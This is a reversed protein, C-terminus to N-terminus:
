SVMCMTSFICGHHELSPGERAWSEELTVVLRFWDSGDRCGNSFLRSRSIHAGHPAVSYDGTYQFRCVGHLQFAKVRVQCEGDCGEAVTDVPTISPLTRQGVREDGNEGDDRQDNYGNIVGYRKM